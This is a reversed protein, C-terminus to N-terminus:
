ATYSVIPLLLLVCTPLTKSDKALIDVNPTLSHSEKCTMCIWQLIPEGSM